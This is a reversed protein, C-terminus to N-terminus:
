LKITSRRDGFGDTSTRNRTPGGAVACLSALIAAQEGAYVGEELSKSKRQAMRHLKPMLPILQEWGDSWSSTQPIFRLLYREGQAAAWFELLYPACRRMFRVTDPLSRRTEYPLHFDGIHGREFVCCTMDEFFRRVIKGQWDHGYISMNEHGMGGFRPRFFRLVAKLGTHPMSLLRPLGQDKLIENIFVDRAKEQVADFPALDSNMYLSRTPRFKKDAIELVIAIREADVAADERRKFAIHLLSICTPADTAAVWRDKWEKWPIDKSLATKILGAVPERFMNCM